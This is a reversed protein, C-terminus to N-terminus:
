QVLWLGKNNSVMFLKNCSVILWNNREGNVSWKVNIWDDHKIVKVIQAQQGNIAHNTVMLQEPKSLRSDDM